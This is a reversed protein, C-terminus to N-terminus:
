PVPGTGQAMSGEQFHGAGQELAPSARPCTFGTFDCGGLHFRVAGQLGQEPGCMTGGLRVLSLYVPLEQDEGRHVLQEICSFLESM